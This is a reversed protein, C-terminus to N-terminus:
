RQVPVINEAHNTANGWEMDWSAISKPNAFRLSPVSVYGPFLAWHYMYDTYENAIAIRKAIDPEAAGRLYFDRIEPTEFGCSFGGRTLTTQVLGKPWDWPYQEQGDDCSTLMPTVTTRGVLGPRFVAYAYKLVPTKVGIKEWYGAVADGIEGAPGEGGGLEPGVFLPIEFHTGGDSPYGAEEILAEAGEPDYPYEWKSNWNPDQTSMYNVHVPTGIGGLVYEIIAERDVAMALATRVLRAQEMDDIGPPNNADDPTWPNGVWQIDRAYVGSLDITERLSEGTLANYDDWLNGTFMAGEQVAAGSSIEMYGEERMWKMDKPSIFAIDAEGTQLMAVRTAEEPVAIVKIVDVQGNKNWHDYPVKEFTGQLDQSYETLMFPGTGIYNQKLWDEGM